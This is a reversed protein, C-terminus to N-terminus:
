RLAVELGSTVYPDFMWMPVTGLRSTAATRRPPLARLVVAGPWPASARPGPSRLQSNMQRMLMRVPSSSAMM